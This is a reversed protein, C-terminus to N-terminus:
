PLPRRRRMLNMRRGARAGSRPCPTFTPIDGVLAVNPPLDFLFEGDVMMCSVVRAQRGREAIAAQCPQCGCFVSPWLEGAGTGILRLEM